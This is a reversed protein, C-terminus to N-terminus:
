AGPHEEAYAYGDMVMGLGAVSGDDNREKYYVAPKGHADLWIIWSKDDPEIWGAYEDTVSPHDYRGIKLNSVTTDKWINTPLM